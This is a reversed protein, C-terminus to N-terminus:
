EHYISILGLYMLVTRSKTYSFMLEDPRYWSRCKCNEFVGEFTFFVANRHLIVIIVVVVVTKIKAWVPVLPSECLFKLHFSCIETYARFRPKPITESALCAVRSLELNEKRCQLEYFSIPGGGITRVKVVANNVKNISSSFENMASEKHGQNRQVFHILM